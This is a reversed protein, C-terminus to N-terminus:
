VRKFNVIRMRALLKPLVGYYFHENSKTLSKFSILLVWFCTLNLINQRFKIRYMMDILSKAFMDLIEACCDNFSYEFSKWFETFSNLTEGSFEIRFWYILYITGFDRFMSFYLKSKKNWPFISRNKLMEFDLKFYEM